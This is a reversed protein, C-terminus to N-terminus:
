RGARLKPQQYHTSPAFAGTDARRDLIDLYLRDGLALVSFHADGNFASLSARSVRCVTVDDSDGDSLM